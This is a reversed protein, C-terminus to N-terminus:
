NKKLKGASKSPNKASPLSFMFETYEGQASRVIIDGGHLNIISRVIYLGLGVGNKDLGRSKDSKYFKDFIHPLEEKSIGAGSNRVCIYTMSNKTTFDFAIYGDQNVFKVANEILNYVVQHILDPDAEVLTKEADLGRIDLHKEEIQQEFTFVTTCVIAHVDVSTTKIKMEGAEIRAINLMSRVLRSLRKVEASVVTLYYEHREPPITGDLIGDIFGAISTMPTKLEHSVNAIFSRRMSELTSLSAAMNNFSMALQAVEDSGEVPIRTTFDGKGFSYAAKAMQKLPSVQRSTIFYIVVFAVLIVGVASIGFMKLIDMLFTELGDSSMSVFVTAVMEGEPNFIPMGVTYYQGQSYFGSLDTVDTVTGVRVQEMVEDPVHYTTHQCPYPETCFQTRGFEDTMFLEAGIANKIITFDEEISPIYMDKYETKELVSTVLKSATAVNRKLMELKDSVFYQSAFILLVAGLTTICLLIIASCTVFYKKLLSNRM